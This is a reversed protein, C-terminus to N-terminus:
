RVLDRERPLPFYQAAVRPEHVQGPIALAMALCFTLLAIGVHADGIPRRM